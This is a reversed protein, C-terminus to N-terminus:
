KPVLKLELGEEDAKVVSVFFDPYDQALLLDALHRPTTTITARFTARGARIARQRVEQVYQPMRKMAELFSRLDAFRKIGSVSVTVKQPESIVAWGARQLQDVLEAAMTRGVLSAERGQGAELIRKRIAELDREQSWGQASSTDEGEQSQDAAASPQDQDPPTSPQTPLAPEQDLGENWGLQATTAVVRGTEVELILATATATRGGPGEDEEILGALVLDAQYRRGLDLAQGATLDEVIVQDSDPIQSSDPDMLPLGTVPDLAEPQTLAQDTMQNDTGTPQDTSFGTQDGAEAPEGAALPSAQDQDAQAEAQLGAQPPTSLAPGSVPAPPPPQSTDIVQCGMEKLRNLLNARALSIPRTGAGPRWWAHPEELGVRLSLLPLLRVKLAQGLNLTKLVSTLSAQNVQASILLHLREKTESRAAIRFGLVHPHPSALLPQVLLPLASTLREPGLRALLAQVLASRLARTVAKDQAVHEDPYEQFSVSGHALIPEQARAPGGAMGSVLLALLLILSGKVM